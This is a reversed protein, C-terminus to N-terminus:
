AGGERKAYEDEIREEYLRDPDEDTVDEVLRSNQQQRQSNSTTITPRGGGAPREIRELVPAQGPQQSYRETTTAGAGDTYSREAYTTQQPRGGNHSSSSSSSSYSTYSSSFSQTVSPM